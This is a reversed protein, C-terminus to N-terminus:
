SGIWGDAQWDARARHRRLAYLVWGVATLAAACALLPRITWVVWVVGWVALGVGAALALLAVLLQWVNLAALKTM